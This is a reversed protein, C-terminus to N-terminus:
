CLMNKNPNSILKFAIYDGRMDTSIVVFRKCKCKLKMWTDNKKMFKEEIEEFPISRKCHPCVAKSEALTLIGNGLKISKM